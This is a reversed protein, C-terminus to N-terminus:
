WFFNGSMRHVLAGSSLVSAKRQLSALMAFGGNSLIRRFDSCSCRQVAAGSCRQVAAGSCRQVAVRSISGGARVDVVKWGLPTQKMVYDLETADGAAINANAFMLADRAMEPITAGLQITVYTHHVMEDAWLPGPAPRGAGCGVFYETCYAAVSVRQVACGGVKSMGGAPRALGAIAHEAPGYETSPLTVDSSADVWEGEVVCKISNAFKSAYENM